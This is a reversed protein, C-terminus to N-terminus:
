FYREAEKLSKTSIFLLNGKQEAKLPIPYCTGLGAKLKDLPYRSGCYRCVLFFGEVRFGKKHPYCRMCADLYAETSHETRVVFFNVKKSGNQYTYFRPSNLSLEKVNVVVYDGRIPPPEYTPGQACAWLLMVAVTPWFLKSALFHRSPIITTKRM